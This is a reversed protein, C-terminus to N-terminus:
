NEELVGGTSITFSRTGFDSSFPAATVSYSYEAFTEVFTFGNHVGSFYDVNLYPPTPTLLDDVTIPYKHNLSAYMELSSSISKLAAQASGENSTMKSRLLNPISTAALLAIIGVVIMIEVLTYGEQNNKM